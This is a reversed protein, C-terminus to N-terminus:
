KKDASCVRLFSPAPVPPTLRPECRVWKPRLKLGRRASSRASFLTFQDRLQNSGQEKNKLADGVAGRALGADALLQYRSRTSPAVFHWCRPSRRPPLIVPRLQPPAHNLGQRAFAGYRKVYHPGARPVRAPPFTGPGM